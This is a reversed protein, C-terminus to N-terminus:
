GVVDRGDVNGKDGQGDDKMAPIHPVPFEHPSKDHRFEDTACSCLGTPRDCRHDPEDSHNRHPRGEEREQDRVEEIVQPVLHGM